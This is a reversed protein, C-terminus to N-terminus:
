KSGRAQRGALAATLIKRMHGRLKEMRGQEDMLWKEGAQRAGEACAREVMAEDVAAPQQLQRELVRLATRLQGACGQIAGAMINHLDIDAEDDPDAEDLHQLARASWEDALAALTEAAPPPPRLFFPRGERRALEFRRAASGSRPEDARVSYDVWHVTQYHIYGDPEAAAPQKLREAVAVLMGLGTESGDSEIGFVQEYLAGADAEVNDIYRIADAFGGPFRDDEVAAPQQGPPVMLERRGRCRAISNRLIGATYGEGHGESELLDLALRADEILDSVAYRANAANTGLPGGRLVIADLVALVDVASAAAADAESEALLGTMCARVTDRGPGTMRPWKTGYLAECAREVASATELTSWPEASM